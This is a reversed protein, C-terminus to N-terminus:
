VGERLRFVIHLVETKVVTKDVEGGLAVQHQLTKFAILRLLVGKVKLHLIILVQLLIQGRAILASQDDRGADHAHAIRQEDPENLLERLQLQLLLLDAEHQLIIQRCDVKDGALHLLGTVGQELIDVVADVLQLYRHIIDFARM